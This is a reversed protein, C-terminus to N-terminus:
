EVMAGDKWILTMTGDHNVLHLANIAVDREEDKKLIENISKNRHFITDKYLGGYIELVEPLVTDEDIEEEIEVTFTEKKHVEHELDLIRDGDFIVSSGSYNSYFVKNKVDNDWVYIILEPLNMDVEHKIKPM